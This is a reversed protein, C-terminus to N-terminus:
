DKLHFDLSLVGDGVAGGAFDGCFYPFFLEVFAM